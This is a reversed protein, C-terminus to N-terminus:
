SRRGCGLLVPAITWLELLLLELMCLLLMEVTSWGWWQLLSGDPWWLLKEGTVKGVVVVFLHPV